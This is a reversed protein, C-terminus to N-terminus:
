FPHPFSTLGRRCVMGIVSNKSAWLYSQSVFILLKKTPNSRCNVVELGALGRHSTNRLLPCVYEYLLTTHGRHPKYLPYLSIFYFNNSISLSILSLFPSYKKNKLSRRLYMAKQGKPCEVDKSSSRPPVVGPPFKKTARNKPRCKEHLFKSVTHLPTSSSPPVQLFKSLKSFWLSGNLDM